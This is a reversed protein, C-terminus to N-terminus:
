IFKLWKMLHNLDDIDNCKSSYYKSIIGREVVMITSGNNRM